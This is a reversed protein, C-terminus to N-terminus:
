YSRSRAVSPKRPVPPSFRAARPAKASKQPMPANASRRGRIPLAKVANKKDMGRRSKPEKPEAVPQIKLQSRRPGTAKPTPSVIRAM